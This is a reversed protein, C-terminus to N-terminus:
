EDQGGKNKSVVKDISEAVAKKAGEVKKKLIQKTGLSQNQLKSELIPLKRKIETLGENYKKMKIKYVSESIKNEKFREQQSRKMLQLLVKREMKMKEIKGKLGRYAINKYVVYSAVGLVILFVLIM